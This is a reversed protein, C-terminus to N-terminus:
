ESRLSQSIVIKGMRFTPYIGALLAASVALVLAFGFPLWSLELQLTWGFSRRNIIFILILALMYGCPMALIGTVLGILGTEFLILKWLQRVTLGLSRLIGIEHQRELELSLLASLVGIFAVLTALLQLSQTIAFTRDFIVMVESRLTRNSRIVLDQDEPGQDQLQHVTEDIDIGPDLRLSLASIEKDGWSDQYVPLAMIVTGQTSAYDYYIGVVPFKRLGNKTYVSIEGGKRPINHHNAFPESVLVAGQQMKKWVEGKAVDTSLFLREHAVDQYDTAAIQISGIPSDVSVSRLVDLRAIGPWRRIKEITAPTITTSPRNATLSPASIYIDGQLTQELWTAVTNRFSSVMLSVGITVSIAVMLAMVAIATRSLSNVVDRPAMRGLTGWLRGFPNIARQMLWQMTIPVLMAFGLILGFTAAFSGVLSEESLVLIFGGTLIFGLGFIGAVRVAKQAKSELSSRTLAARPTVAAAEWAPPVASLLTTGTGLVFGKVLSDPPIQVGRVSIVFFLDNITQTVLRVAGQGLAIGLMVGLLSGLTGVMLAEFCVLFFVEQRTVGICRLTGFLKRRQIVSFTMTNYILFMGVVMALLSLATLNVRFASTMEKITGTRNQVSEIHLNPPLLAQIAALCGGPQDITLSCAQKPNEPLILDIRDLFGTRGTLEQATAIDALIMGDLAQASLRDLPVIYGGITVPQTRGSSVLSLSQGIEIKYRKALGQSIFIAGPQTLFNTLTNSAIRSSSGRELSKSSEQGGLYNRFPADVLPDLGLLQLSQGGLEPSTVYQSIVPAIARNIGSTRLRTYIAQEIGGPGGSIEHTAKGVVADTSLDFARSASANALDVAVVVAVGLTIGLIMLISQWPHRLLQRWGLRFLSM